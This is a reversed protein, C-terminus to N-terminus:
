LRQTLRRRGEFAQPRSLSDQRPFKRRQELRSFDDTYEYRFGRMCVTGWAMAKREFVKKVKLRRKDDSSLESQFKRKMDHALEKLAAGNIKSPCKLPIHLQMDVWYVNMKLPNEKTLRRHIPDRFNENVHFQLLHNMNPDNLEKKLSAIMNKASNIRKTTYNDQSMLRSNKKEYWAVEADGISNYFADLFNHYLCNDQSPACSQRLLHQTHNIIEMPDDIGEDVMRKMGQHVVMDYTAIPGIRTNFNDVQGTRCFYTYADHIHSVFPDRRDVMHSVAIGQSRALSIQRGSAADDLRHLRRKAYCVPYYPIAGLVITCVEQNHAFFSGPCKSFRRIQTRSCEWCMFLGMGYRLFKVGRERCIECYRGLSIRLIRDVTVPYISRKEILDKLVVMSQLSNRSHMMAARVAVDYSVIGAFESNVQSISLLDKASLFPVVFDKFVEVPVTTTAEHDVEMDDYSVVEDEQNIILGQPLNEEMDDYSVVEDEQKIIPDQPLNEIVVEGENLGREDLSLTDFSPAEFLLRGTDPDIAFNDERYLFGPDMSGVPYYSSVDSSSVVHDPSYDVYVSETELEAKSQSRTKIQSVSSVGSSSVVQNPSCLADVSKTDKEAKSQSRTKM